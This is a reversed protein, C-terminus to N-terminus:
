EKTRTFLKKWEQIPTPHTLAPKLNVTVHEARGMGILATTLGPASRAFQISNDADTKMGLVSGVFDPLGQTLRAQYLTASGMVAIELRTAASLLSMKERKNRQNALGYAEPMSLNFPLQIFRFRHHDGAVDHAIKALEFLDMYDRSGDAVRFASWTAVGYFQIRGTKALKELAAFADKLRQRFVERSVEALQSEPNHIYFLDITELGLNRRSREIQNELYAPSMCHMGGALDKANLVGTEVYERHFYGRPDPPPDGDFSLYGAKTCVLVEDRHLEGAEILQKLATGINRESRQHRYNIATDLVNIGSRLGAEIAATYAQDAADSPDGLYTGLGISSLWLQSVGPVHQAQRFHAADRLNPFRDRYRATGASTAHGPLLPSHVM